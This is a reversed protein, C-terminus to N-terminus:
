IKKDLIRKELHVDKVTCDLGYYDSKKCRTQVLNKEEFIKMAKNYAGGYSDALIHFAELGSATMGNHYGTVEYGITVYYGDLKNKM